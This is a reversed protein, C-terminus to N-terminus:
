WGTLIINNEVDGNFITSILYERHNLIMKFNENLKDQYNSIKELKQKTNIKIIKNWDTNEDFYFLM